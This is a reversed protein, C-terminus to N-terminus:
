SENSVLKLARPYTSDLYLQIQLVVGLDGSDYLPNGHFGNVKM